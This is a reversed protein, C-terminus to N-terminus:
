RVGSPPNSPAGPQSLRNFPEPDFPDRPEKAKEKLELQRIAEDLRKLERPEVAGSADVPEQGGPILSVYASSSLAESGNSNGHMGMSTGEFSGGTVPNGPYSKQMTASAPQVAPTAVMKTWAEIRTLLELDKSNGIDFSPKAQTSHAQTSMKLLPSESPQTRNVKAVASHLSKQLTAFAMANATPFMLQTPGQVGHCGSQGCRNRLIPLVYDRYEVSVRSGLPIEPETASARQVTDRTERPIQTPRKPGMGFLKRSEEDEILKQHLLVELQKFKPDNPIRDRLELYHLGAHDLLGNETCWYAFHLHEGTGLRAIERLQHQYLDLKTKGIFRIESAKKVMRATGDVVHVDTGHPQVDGHLVVGTHLLLYGEGSPVKSPDIAPVPEVFSFFLVILFFAGTSECILRSVRLKRGVEAM